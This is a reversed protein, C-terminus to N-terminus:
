AHNNQRKLRRESVMRKTASVYRRSFLDDLNQPFFLAHGWLFDQSRTHSFTGRRVNTHLRRITLGARSEAGEAHM